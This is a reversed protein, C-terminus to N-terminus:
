RAWASPRPLPRCAGGRGRGSDGRAGGQRHRGGDDAHPLLAPIQRGGDDRGQLRRHQGASSLVDMSQARTTRPAAELAFGTLKASALRQLGEADFPNLMGVVTTGPKMMALKQTQLSRVKLVLECGYPAPPMPSRPVPREYAEDTVSAAVLMGMKCRNVSLECVAGLGCDRNEALGRAAVRGACRGGPRLAGPSRAPRPNRTAYGPSRCRAVAADLAARDALPEGDWLVQGTPLVDLKVVVPRVIQPPPMGGPMELTVSHLQVPITIIFMVLLVLMVDVLPTTNIDVMV